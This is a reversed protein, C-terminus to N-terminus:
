RGQGGLIVPFGGCPRGGTPAGSVSMLLSRCGCFWVWSKSGPTAARGWRVSGMSDPLSRLWQYFEGPNGDTLETRTWHSRPVTFLTLRLVSCRVVPPPSYEYVARKGAGFGLEIGVVDFHLDARFRRIERAEPLAAAPEEVTMGFRLPGVSDLPTAVWVPRVQSAARQSRPPKTGEVDKM